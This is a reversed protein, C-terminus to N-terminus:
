FFGQGFGVTASFNFDALRTPVSQGTKDNLVDITKEGAEIRAILGCLRRLGEKVADDVAKDPAVNMRILLLQTQQSPSPFGVGPQVHHKRRFEEATAQQEAHGIKPSRTLENDRETKASM